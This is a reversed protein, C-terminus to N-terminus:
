PQWPRAITTWISDFWRSAESIYLTGMSDPDGGTHHFLETDKGM